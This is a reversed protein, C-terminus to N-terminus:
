QNHEQKDDRRTPFCSQLARRTLRWREETELPDVLRFCSGSLIEAYAANKDRVGVPALLFGTLAVDTDLEASSVLECKVEILSGAETFLLIAVAGFALAASSQSGSWLALRILGDDGLDLEGVSLQAVHPWGDAACTVLEIMTDAGPRPLPGSCRARVIEPLHTLNSSLSTYTKPM